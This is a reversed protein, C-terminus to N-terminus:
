RADEEAMIQARNGVLCGILFLSRLLSKMRPLIEFAIFFAFQPFQTSALVTILFTDLHYNEIGVFNRHVYISRWM